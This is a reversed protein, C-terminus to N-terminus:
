KGFWKKANKLVKKGGKELGAALESAVDSAANLGAHGRPGSRLGETSSVGVEFEDLWDLFVRMVRDYSHYQEVFRRGKDGYDKRRAPNRYLELIADRVEEVSGSGVCIGAGFGSMGYSLETGFTTVVPLGFKMMELLRNRSGTLTDLCRRDVNLGVDTERYLYPIHKAPVWGLFKFRDRYRSLGVLEKFKLFTKNAGEEEDSLGGTSIFYIDRTSRGSGTSRGSRAASSRLSHAARSDDDSDGSGSDMPEDGVEAMAAEVGKFLTEEDVWASYSGLWLVVFANAPLDAGSFSDIGKFYRLGVEEVEEFAGASWARDSSQTHHVTKVIKEIKDAAFDELGNEIRMVFERDFEYAGMKKMMALEGIVAYKQAESVVSVFDARELVKEEDRLYSGLRKDHGSKYADIQAKAMTWGAMDAWFAAEFKLKSVLECCDLNVGVIVHPQYEDIVSQLVSLLAPDNESVQHHIFDPAADTFDKRLLSERTPAPAAASGAGAAAGSTGAGSEAIENLDGYCDDLAVTVLRVSYGDKPVLKGNSRGSRGSAGGDTDTSGGNARGGMLSKVFQWTRLGESPRKKANDNPLPSNGVILVRKMKTSNFALDADFIYGYPIISSFVRIHLYGFTWFEL